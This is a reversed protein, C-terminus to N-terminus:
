TITTNLMPIGTVSTITSINPPMPIPVPCSNPIFTIHGSHFFLGPVARQGVCVLNCTLVSAVSCVNSLHNIQYYSLITNFFFYNTCPSALLHVDTIVTAVLYKRKTTAITPNCSLKGQPSGSHHSGANSRVAPVPSPPRISVPPELIDRYKSVM